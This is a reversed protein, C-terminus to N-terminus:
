ADVQGRKTIDRATEYTIAASAALATAAFM